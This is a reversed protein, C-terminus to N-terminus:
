PVRRGTLITIDDSQEGGGAHLHLQDTLDRIFGNSPGDSQAQLRRRLHEMGFEKQGPAMAENMGDTFLVFRDGPELSITEEHIMSAYQEPPLVGLVPGNSRHVTAVRARSHWVVAPLHGANALRLSHRETDLVGYIGSLFTGRKINGNLMHNVLTLARAPGAEPEPRVRFLLQCMVAMLCAPLGKGSADMVVLGVRTRDIPLVDYFDGSVTRAPRLFAAVDYGPVQIPERPLLGQQTKAGAELDQLLTELDSGKLPVPATTPPGADGPREHSGKRSFSFLGMRRGNYFYGM